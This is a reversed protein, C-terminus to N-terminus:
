RIMMRNLDMHGALIIASTHLVNAEVMIALLDALRRPTNLDDFLSMGLGVTHREQPSLIGEPGRCEAFSPNFRFPLGDEDGLTYVLLDDCVSPEGFLYRYEHGTSPDLVLFPVQHDRWLQVLLYLALNSKGSGPAGVLLSPKKLKSLPRVM